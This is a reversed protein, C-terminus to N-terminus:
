KNLFLESRLINRQSDKGSQEDPNSVERQEVQAYM